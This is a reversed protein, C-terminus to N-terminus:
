LWSKKKFLELCKRQKVRSRHLNRYVGCRSRQWSEIFCCLRAKPSESSSCWPPALHYTPLVSAFSLSLRHEFRGLARLQLSGAAQVATTYSCKERECLKFFMLLWSKASKLPGAAQRIGWLVQWSLQRSSHASAKQFPELRSTRKNRKM